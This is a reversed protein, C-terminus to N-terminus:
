IVTSDINLDQSSDKFILYDQYLLLKYLTVQCDLLEDVLNDVETSIYDILSYDLDKPAVDKSNSVAFMKLKATIDEISKKLEDIKEQLEYKNDVNIHSIFINTTFDIGWSM